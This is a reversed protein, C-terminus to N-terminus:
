TLPPIAAMAAQMRDALTPEDDIRSTARRIRESVAALRDGYRAAVRSRYEGEIQGIEARIATMERAIERIMPEAAVASREDVVAALIEAMQDLRDAFDEVATFNEVASSEARRDSAATAILLGLAVVFPWALPGFRRPESQFHM